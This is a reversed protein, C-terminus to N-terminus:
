SFMLIIKLYEQCMETREGFKSRNGAQNDIAEKCQACDKIHIQVAEHQPDTSIETGPPVPVPEYKKM